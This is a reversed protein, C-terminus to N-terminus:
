TFSFDFDPSTQTGFNYLALSQQMGVTDTKWRVRHNEMQISESRESKGRALLVIEVESFTKPASSLDTKGQEEECCVCVAFM